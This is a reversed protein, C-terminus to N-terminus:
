GRPTVLSHNGTLEGGGGSSGANREEELDSSSESGGPSFVGEEHTLVAALGDFERRRAREAREHRQRRRREEALEEEWGDLARLTSINEDVSQGRRGRGRTASRNPGRGSGRGESPASGIRRSGRRGGM